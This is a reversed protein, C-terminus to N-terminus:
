HAVEILAIEDPTLGYLTYVLEDINQEADSTDANPQKAKAAIIRDM